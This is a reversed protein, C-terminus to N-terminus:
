GRRKGKSRARRGGHDQHESEGEMTVFFLIKPYFFTATVSENEKGCICRSNMKAKTLSDM